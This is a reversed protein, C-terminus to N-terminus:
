VVLQVLFAAVILVAAVVAIVLLVSTQVGSPHATGAAEAPQIV